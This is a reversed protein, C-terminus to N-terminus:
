LGAFPDIAIVAEGDIRVDLRETYFGLFGRVPEGDSLPREYVWALDELRRDGALLTRYTARGKYSCSTTTGSPEIPVLVDEAPVYWRVPLMTEWLLKAGTTDVLEVGGSALQLRASTARVDIRHFPDRPHAVVEQEEEHWTLGDFDVLVLERLDPDDCVFGAVPAGATQLEVVAGPSTHADFAVSPDLVRRRRERESLARAAGREAVPVRIDDRPVAYVPTVWNPRWVLVAARSDVVLQSGAHGRIRFPTPEWRLTGLRDISDRGLRVSM